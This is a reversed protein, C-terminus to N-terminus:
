SPSLLSAAHGAALGEIAEMLVPVLIPKAVFPARRLRQPLDAKNYGSVVVYPIHREELCAALDAGSGDVLKADLIVLDVVRSDIEKLAGAVSTAPGISTGGARAIEQTLMLGIVFEDEVILVSKGALWRTM